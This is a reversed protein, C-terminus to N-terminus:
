QLLKDISITEYIIFGQSINQPTLKEVSKSERGEIIRFKKDILQNESYYDIINILQDKIMRKQKGNLKAPYTQFFESLHFIKEVHKNAFQQTWYAWVTINLKNPNISFGTFRPLSFPFNYDFLRESVWVTAILPQGVKESQSVNALPIASISQFNKENFFQIVVQTQLIQIFRKLKNIQYGNSNSNKEIFSRLEFVFVRYNSKIDNYSLQDTQYNLDRLFELFTLFQLIQVSDVVQDFELGNQDLLKVRVTKNLQSDMYDTQYYFSKNVIKNRFRQTALPRIIFFVWDTFCYQSPLKEALHIVFRIITEKEFEKLESSKLLKFLNKLRPKSKFEHEFRLDSNHKPKYIRLYHITKRNGIKMILGEENSQITFNHNNKSIKKKSELIKKDTDSIEVYKKATDIFFDVVSPEHTKIHRSYVTDLRTLKSGDFVNWDIRNQEVLLYFRQANIGSFHLLRWDRLTNPQPFVIQHKNTTKQRLTIWGKNKTQGTHESANFGLRFFYDILFERNFNLENFEFALFDLQIEQSKFDLQSKVEFENKSHQNM